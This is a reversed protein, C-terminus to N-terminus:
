TCAPSYDAEQLTRQPLFVVLAAQPEDDAETAENKEDARLHKQKHIKQQFYKIPGAENRIQPKVIAPALHQQQVAEQGPGHLM